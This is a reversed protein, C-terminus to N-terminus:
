IIYLHKVPSKEKLYVRWWLLHLKDPLWSEPNLTKAWAQGKSFLPSWQSVATLISPQLFSSNLNDKIHTHM